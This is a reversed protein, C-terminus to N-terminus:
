VRFGRDKLLRWVRPTLALTVPVRAPFLIKNCLFALAFASGGKVAFSELSGVVGGRGEAVVKGSSGSKEGAAPDETAFDGPLERGSGGGTTDSVGSPVSDHGGAASIRSQSQSHSQSHNLSQSPTVTGLHHVDTVNEVAGEVVELRRQINAVEAEKDGKYLGARELLGEVDVSSRIAVYCGILCLASVSFHVGAAVRGYKSMMERLRLMTSAAM